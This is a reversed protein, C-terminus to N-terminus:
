GNGRQAKMQDSLMKYSEEFDRKIFAADALKDAQEAAMSPEHNLVNVQPVCVLVM